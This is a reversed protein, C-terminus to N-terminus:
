TKFKTNEAVCQKVKDNLKNHVQNQLGGHTITSFIWIQLAWIIFLIVNSRQALIYVYFFFFNSPFFKIVDSFM